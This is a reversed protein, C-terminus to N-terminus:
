YNTAAEHCSRGGKANAELDGIQNTISTIEERLKIIQATATKHETLQELVKDRKVRAQGFKEIWIDEAKTLFKRKSKIEDQLQKIGMSFSNYLDGYAQRITDPDGTLESELDRENLLKMALTNLERVIRDVHKSAQIRKTDFENAKDFYAVVAQDEDSQKPLSKELAKVRQTLSDRNTGLRRMKAQLRWHSALHQIAEKVAGKAVDIEQSLRVDERKYEPNVFPLLDTLQAKRGSQKGIESLEGQSYVVAPFLSRLEKATVKQTDGNPYTVTLQNAAPGRVIQFVANDQVISLQIRGRKSIFTDTVLATLRETGSYHDRPVDLCSRGLGFSLYELLSSKGSGRGGITSNLEPSLELKSNQLITSGEIDIRAVVLSPVQPQEIHIRSQHGLFAQRIAEATPQALKIWTNNQGLTAFSASRSDSTPLPYIETLSWKNDEGSLRKRNRTGLTNITQNQDLYGGVYPMRRFDGHAGAVLVTHM